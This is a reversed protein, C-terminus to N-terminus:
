SLVDFTVATLKREGHEPRDPQLEAVRLHQAAVGASRQSGGVPLPPTGDGPYLSRREVAEGRLGEGGSAVLWKRVEDPSDFLLVLTLPIVILSLAAM